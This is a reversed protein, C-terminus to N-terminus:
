KPSYIHVYIEALEAAANDFQAKFSDIQQKLAAREVASTLNALEAGLRGMSDQSNLMIQKLNELYQANLLVVKGNPLEIRDSVAPLAELSKKIEQEGGEGYKFAPPTTAKGQNRKEWRETLVNEATQRLFDLTRALADLLRTEIKLNVEMDSGGKSYDLPQSRQRLLQEVDEVSPREKHCIELYEFWRHEAEIDEEKFDAEEYLRLMEDDSAICISRLDDVIRQAIESKLMGSNIAHYLLNRLANVRWEHASVKGLYGEWLELAIRHLRQYKENEFLELQRAMVQRVVGDHWFIGDDKIFIHKSTLKSWATHHDITIDIKQCLANLLELNMQRFISIAQLLSREDPDFGALMKNFEDIACVKWIDRLKHFDQASFDEGYGNDQWYEVLKVIMGPHGGSLRAINRAVSRLFKSSQAGVSSYEALIELIHGPQIAPLRQKSLTVDRWEDWNYRNGTMQVHRGALIIKYNVAHNEYLPKAIKKFFWRILDGQQDYEIADLVLAFPEPKRSLHGFLATDHDRARSLDFGFGQKIKERISDESNQEHLDICLCQYGDKRLRQQAEALLRSKGYGAPADILIYRKDM